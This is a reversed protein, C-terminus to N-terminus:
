WKEVNLHRLSDAYFIFVCSDLHILWIYFKNYIGYKMLTYIHGVLNYGFSM